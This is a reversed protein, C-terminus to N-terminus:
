LRCRTEAVGRADLGKIAMLRGADPHDSVLRGGSDAIATVYLTDLGEGGFAPCSPFPIPLDIRREVRGEPSICVIQGGQVMAVWIRGQADVTAGDPASGLPATDILVEQPGLAGTQRDYAYAWIAMRLSDAFYLRDGAPSFCIANSIEVGEVLVEAPQDPAFRFLKGPPPHVGSPVMTGTLYRGQRDTKGDNLRELETMAPPTLIPTFAGTALDLRSVAHRLGAVLTGPASLVLNGILDPAPIMAQGGSAPDHSWVARALVDVWFLRKLDPDWVPSEGLRCRSDGIFTIQPTM